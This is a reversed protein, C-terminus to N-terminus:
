IHILSLRRALEISAEVPMDWPHYLDLEPFDRALLEREPLGACDDEATFRAINLAAEVTDRLAKASFDSTSAYGKRQGAYVTIGIGKDRNYEITEVEDCRVTM